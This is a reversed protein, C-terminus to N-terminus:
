ENSVPPQPISVDAPNLYLYLMNAAQACLVSAKPELTKETVGSVIGKAVAWNMADKAYSSVDANDQFQSLHNRAVPFDKDYRFLMTAIQERTIEEDPAFTSETTGKIVNNAQAWIVATEYWSGNKVDKFPNPFDQVSPCDAMKYLITVFQGRTMISKPDFEEGDTGVIFGKEMLYEISPRYLSLDEEAGAASVATAYAQVMCVITLLLISLRRKM